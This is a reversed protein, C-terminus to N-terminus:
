EEPWEAVAAASRNPTRPKRPATVYAYPDGPMEPEKRDTVPGKRRKIRQVLAELMAKIRRHLPLRM